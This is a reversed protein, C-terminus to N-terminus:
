MRSKKGKHFNTLFNGPINRVQFKGSSWTHAHMDPFYKMKRKFKSPFYTSGQIFHSMSTRKDKQRCNSFGISIGGSEKLYWPFETVQGQGFDMDRELMSFLYLRSLHCPITMFNSTFKSWVGTAKQCSIVCPIEMLIWM